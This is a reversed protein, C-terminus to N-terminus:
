QHPSSTLAKRIGDVTENGLKEFEIKVVPAGLKALGHLDITSDYVIESRGDGLNRVRIDDTATATDNRGVFTIHGPLLVELRYELETRMGLVKSVNHWRAGVKVGGDTLQTCSETGPDWEETHAFDSLYSVVVAQPTDVTFTRQVHVM